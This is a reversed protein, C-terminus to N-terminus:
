VVYIQKKIFDVNRDQFMHVISTDHKLDDFLFCLNEHELKKKPKDLLENSIERCSSKLYYIVAPHNTCNNKTWYYCFQVLM